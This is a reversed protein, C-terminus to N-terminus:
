PDVTLIASEPLWGVPGAPFAVQVWGGRRCIVRAEFGRPLAPLDPLPPYSAANGQRLEIKDDILIALPGVMKRNDETPATDKSM